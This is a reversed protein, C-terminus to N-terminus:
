YIMQIEKISFSKIKNENVFVELLGTKSVGQIKGSFNSNNDTEFIMEINKRFLRELYFDWILQSKKQLILNCNEEIKLVIKELLLELDYERNMIKSLSSAKPLNEFDIQNVNLGIGIISEITKDPKFSNEILIGGIKTIGSLIDNPWKIALELIKFTDLVQIISIAVAVNLDFIQNSSEFNNKILISFTLNKGSESKWLAGMQGKGKTQSKTVVVTFNEITKHSCLQKLYDNTSETADLKIIKM